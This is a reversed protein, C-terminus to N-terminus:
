SYSNIHMTTWDYCNDITCILFFYLLLCILTSFLLLMSLLSFQAALSPPIFYSQRITHYTSYIMLFEITRRLECKFPIFSLVCNNSEYWQLLKKGKILSFINWKTFILYKRPESNNGWSESDAFFLFLNALFQTEAYEVYNFIEGRRINQMSLHHFLFVKKGKKMINAWEIM